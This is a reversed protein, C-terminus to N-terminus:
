MGGTKGAPPAAKAADKEAAVRKKIIAADETEAATPTTSGASTIKFTMTVITRKPNADTVVQLEMRDAPQQKANRDYSWIAAGKDLRSDGLIRDVNAAIEGIPITTTIWAKTGQSYAGIQYLSGTTSTKGVGELMSTLTAVIDAHAGPELLQARGFITVVKGTAADFEYSLSREKSEFSWTGRHMGTFGSAFPAQQQNALAIGRAVENDIRATRWRGFAEISAVPTGGLTPELTTPQYGKELLGALRPAGAQDYVVYGIGLGGPRYPESALLVASALLLGVLRTVM